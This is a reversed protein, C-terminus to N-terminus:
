NIMSKQRGEPTQVLSGGSYVYYGRRELQVSDGVKVLGDEIAPEIYVVSEQKSDKNFIEDINCDKDMTKTTILHDYSLLRYQKIMSLDNVFWNIKFKTTGFNQDDSIKCQINSKDSIDLIEVVVNRLLGVRDGTEFIDSDYTNVMLKNWKHAKKTGLTKNNQHLECEYEVIDCPGNVIHLIAHKSEDADISSYRPIIMDIIKKNTAWLMDWSPLTIKNNMGMEIIYKTLADPHLGRKILGRITPLRPDDWGDVLGKDVMQKLYRKSMVTHEFAIKAFHIVNTM